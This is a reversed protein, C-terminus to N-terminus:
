QGGIEQLEPIANAPALMAPDIDIIQAELIPRQDGLSKFRRALRPMRANVYMTKLDQAEVMLPPMDPFMKGYQARAEAAQRFDGNLMSSGFKRRMERVKGVRVNLETLQLRERRAKATPIGFASMVMDATGARRMLRQDDDVFGGIDPQFQDIARAMRTFAVGAPVLTKPIPINGFGPVRMTQTRDWERNMIAKGTEFLAGPIVPIPMVGLAQSPEVPGFGAWRAVDVGLVDRFGHQLVSGSVYMRALPGFNRGGSLRTLMGATQMEAQTKAGKITTEGMWSMLRIPFSSFTRMWPPLRDQFITRNGGGALFQTSNVMRASHLNIFELANSTMQGQPGLLAKPMFTPDLKMAQLGQTRASYFAIGRNATEVARFPALLWSMYGEAKAFKDGLVGGVGKVLADEDLDLLRPDIKINHEVLEPYSRNFADRSIRPLKRVNPENRFGRIVERAYRPFRGAFESIGALTPGLGATPLTTLPTQLSNGFASGFNLGLTTYYSYTALFNNMARDTGKSKLYEFHTAMKKQLNPSAAGIFKEAKTALTSWVSNFMVEQHSNSGKLSGILHDLAQAKLTNAAGPSQFAFAKVPQTWNETGKVIRETWPIKMADLGAKQIQIMLPEQTFPKTLFDDAVGAAGRIRDINEVKFGHAAEVATIPTNWAYTRAAGRTYNAFIQDLDLVFNGQEFESLNGVRGRNELHGFFTRGGNSRMLRQFDGLHTEIQDAANVRWPGLQYVVKDVKEGDAYVKDLFKVPREKISMGSDALAQQLKTGGKRAMRTLAEAGSLTMTEQGSLIPIHPVYSAFNFPSINKPSLEPVGGPKTPIRTTHPGHTFYGGGVAGRVDSAGSLKIWTEDFFKTLDDNVKQALPTMGAGVGEERFRVIAWKEQASLASLGDEVRRASKMVVSHRHLGIAIKEEVGHGRFFKSVPRAFYSIGTFEESAGIFRKPIGRSWLTTPNKFALLAGLWVAPDTAVNTVWKVFGNSMGLKEAVTKSEDPTVLHPDRLAKAMLDIDFSSITSQFVEMQELLSLERPM